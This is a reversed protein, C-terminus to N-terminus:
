QLKKTRSKKFLSMIKDKGDCIIKKIPEPIYNTLQDYQTKKVFPRKKMMEKEEIKDMDDISVIIPFNWKCLIQFIARRNGKKNGKKIGKRNVIKM